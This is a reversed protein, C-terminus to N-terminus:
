QDRAFEASVVLGPLLARSKEHALLKRAFKWITMLPKCL